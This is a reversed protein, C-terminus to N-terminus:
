TLKFTHGDRGLEEPVTKERSRRLHSMRFAEARLKEIKARRGEEVRETEELPLAADSDLSSPHTKVEGQVPMAWLEVM